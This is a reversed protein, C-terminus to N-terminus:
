GKMCQSVFLGWFVAVVIVVLKGGLTPELPDSSAFLATLPVFVDFGPM